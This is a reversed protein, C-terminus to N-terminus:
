IAIQKDKNINLETKNDNQSQLRQAQKLREQLPMSHNILDQDWDKSKPLISHVVVGKGELCNEMASIFGRGYRDTDM